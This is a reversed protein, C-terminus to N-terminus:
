FFFSFAYRIMVIILPHLSKLPLFHPFSFSVLVLSNLSTSLLASVEVAEGM